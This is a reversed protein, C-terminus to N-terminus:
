HPCNIQFTGSSWWNGYGLGSVVWDQPLLAQVVLGVILYSGYALIIGIIVSILIKKGTNLLAPNGSSFLFTAGGIVFMLIALPPVIKFLLFKIINVILQFIDCIGCPTTSNRSACEPLLGTGNSPSTDAKVIKINQIFFFSLILVVILIILFYKHIM